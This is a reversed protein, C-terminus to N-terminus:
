GQNFSACVIGKPQNPNATGILTVKLKGIDNANIWGESNDIFEEGNHTGYWNGNKIHTINKCPHTERAEQETEAICVFENYTNYANDWDDVEVKYVNMFFPAAEKLKEEKPELIQCEGCVDSCNNTCTRDQKPEKTLIKKIETESICDVEGCRGKQTYIYSRKIEKKIGEVIVYCYKNDDFSLLKCERIPAEIFEEDGLETIPYDTFLQKFKEQPVSIKYIKPNGIEYFLDTKRVEVEECTPNKELWQLFEDNIEQVGDAILDADTTLTIKRYGNSKENVVQLDEKSTKSIDSVKSFDSPVNYDGEKLKEDGTIYVHQYNGKGHYKNNDLLLELSGNDWKFLRSTKETPILHLNKM